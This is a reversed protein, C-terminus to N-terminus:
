TISGHCAALAIGEPTVLSAVLSRCKTVFGANFEQERSDPSGDDPGLALVFGGSATIPSADLPARIGSAVTMAPAFVVQLVGSLLAVPM